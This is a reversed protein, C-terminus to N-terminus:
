SSQRRAASADSVLARTADDAVIEPRRRAWDVLYPVLPGLRTVDSSIVMRRSGGATRAELDVRVSPWTAGYARGRRTFRLSTVDSLSLVRWRGLPWRQAVEDHGIRVEARWAVYLGFAGVTAVALTLAWELWLPLVSDARAEAVRGTATQWLGFPVTAVAFLGGATFAVRVARPPKLVRYGSRDGADPM